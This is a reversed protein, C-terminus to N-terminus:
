KESWTDHEDTLKARCIERLRYYPSPIPQVWREKDNIFEFGRIDLMDIGAWWLEKKAYYLVRDFDWGCMYRRPKLHTLIQQCAEGDAQYWVRLKIM